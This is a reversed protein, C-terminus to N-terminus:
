EIAGLIRLLDEMVGRAEIHVRRSKRDEVATMPLEVIEGRRRWFARESLAPSAAGGERAMSFGAQVIAALGDPGANEIVPLALFVEARPVAFVVGNPLLDAPFLRDMIFPSASAQEREHLLALLGPAGQVELINKNTAAAAFNECAGAFVDEFDAGWLDLAETGVLPADGRPGLAIARLLGGFAERRCMLRRPGQMERPHLLRPRLLRQLRAPDQLVERTPAVGVLPSLGVALAPEDGEETWTQRLVRRISDVPVNTPEARHTFEARGRRWRPTGIGLLGSAREVRGREEESIASSASKFGFM